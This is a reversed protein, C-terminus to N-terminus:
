LSTSHVFRENVMAAMGYGRRCHKWGLCCCRYVGSDFRILMDVILAYCSLRSLWCPAQSSGEIGQLIGREWHRGPTLALGLTTTRTPGNAVPRNSVANLNLAVERGTAGRSTPSWVSSQTAPITGPMEVRCSVVCGPWPNSFDHYTFDCAVGKWLVQIRCSRSGAQTRGALARDRKV